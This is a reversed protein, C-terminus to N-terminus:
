SGVTHTPKPLLNPSSTTHDLATSQVGQWPLAAAGPRQSTKIVHSRCLSTGHPKYLDSGHALRQMTVQQAKCTVEAGGRTPLALRSAAGAGRPGGLGSFAPGGKEKCPTGKQPHM